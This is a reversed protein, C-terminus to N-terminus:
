YNFQAQLRLLNGKQHNDLIKGDNTARDSMTYMATLEFAPIPQWELGVEYEHVTYSRADIEQKKGGRYYQGRVFPIFTQGWEDIRYCVTAFGGELAKSEIRNSSTSDGVTKTQFEPGHGWNYEALIGFPKPAINLSVAVREDLYGGTTKTGTNTSEVVFKGTYAQIGPEIVQGGIEIPYSVRGVYHLTNNAEPKNAIQGNFTGIGIVGYDGSGKLGDRILKTHLKRVHDPAWYFVVGLDRENPFASNLADSRDLPLRNQSSQMNEYGFPIKSQGIRFRFERLSDLSLDFYADRLQGFNLATTSASTAFDPQIYIFVNDSVQGSFILRARRLFFGGNEGISRDCQECKLSSNTELLRNYRVQTYGRLSIKDYWKKEIPKEPAKQESSQGFANTYSVSVIVSVVLCWFTSLRLSSVRM